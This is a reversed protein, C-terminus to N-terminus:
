FDNYKIEIYFFQFIFIRLNGEQFYLAKKQLLFDHPPCSKPLTFGFDNIRLFATPIFDKSVGVHAPTSCCNPRIWHGELLDITNKHEILVISCLRAGGTFHM